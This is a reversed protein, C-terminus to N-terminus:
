TEDDKSTPIHNGAEISDAAAGIPMGLYRRDPDDRATKRLWAVIAAREDARAQAVAARVHDIDAQQQRRYEKIDTKM